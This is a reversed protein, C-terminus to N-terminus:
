ASRTCAITITPHSDQSYTVVYITNTNPDIVPTSTIGVNKITSHIPTGVVSTEGNQLLSNMWLQAGTDADFAYVTDNATAVYVVNHQASNITLGGMYLPQGWIYADVTPSFLVGFTSSNVNSPTLVTEQGQWGDRRNNNKWTTYNLGSPPPNNATVNDSATATYPQGSSATATITCTQPSSPATFNGNSDISGCSSAWSVAM